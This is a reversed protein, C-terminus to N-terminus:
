NSLLIQQLTFLSINIRTMTDRKGWKRREGNWNGDEWHKIGNSNKPRAKTLKLRIWRTRIMM